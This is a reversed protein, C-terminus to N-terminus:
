RKSSTYGLYEEPIEGMLALRKDSVVLYEQIGWRYNNLTWGNMELCLYCVHLMHTDLAHVQPYHGGDITHVRSMTYRHYAAIPQESTAILYKEEISDDEAMESSKSIVQLDFCHCLRFLCM